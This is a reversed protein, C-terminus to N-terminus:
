AKFAEPVPGKYPIVRSGHPMRSHPGTPEWREFAARCDVYWRRRDRTGEGRAVYYSHKARRARLSSAFGLHVIEPTTSSLDLRRVKYNHPTNHNDLYRMGSLYKWVRAHPISWYGGIVEHSFLKYDPTPPLSQVSPPYWIHRQRITYGVEQERGSTAYYKYVKAVLRGLWRQHAYTVFEDADLIVVFDPYLGLTGITDLYLQRAQVKGQAPDSPHSCFGFPIYIIRPDTLALDALYESTGDVSLGSASVMDPNTQAYVTDAAEVFVWKLMGPWNKHQHYFRPLWEMENLILTCLVVSTTDSM